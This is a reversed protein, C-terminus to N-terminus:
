ARGMVAAVDMVRARGTRAWTMRRICMRQCRWGDSNGSYRDSDSGEHAQAGDTRRVGRFRERRGTNM